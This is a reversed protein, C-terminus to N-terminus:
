YPCNSMVDFHNGDQGPNVMGYELAWKTYYRDTDYVYFDNDFIKGTAAIGGHPVGADLVSIDCELSYHDSTNRLNDYFINDHVDVNVIPGMTYMILLGGSDCGRIINHSFVCNEDDGEFDFGVGDNGGGNTVNAFENNRVTWNKTAQLLGGTSGWKVYGGNMGILRNYEALGTNCNYVQFMGALMNTFLNNRFVFNKFRDKNTSGWLNVCIGVQTNNFFCDTVTLGDLVTLGENASSIRGGIMIGASWAYERMQIIGNEDKIWNGDEDSESYDPHFEYLMDEFRCSEILINRNGYPSDDPLALDDHYYRLYIGQKAKKVSLNRIVWFSPDELVVCHDGWKGNMEIVPSNGTGYSALVVPNEATGKGQLNLTENWSASRRLFVGDGPQLQLGVLPAFSKWPANQSLGNNGDSGAISDVYYATGSITGDSDDTIIPDDPIDITLDRPNFVSQHDNSQFSNSEPLSCSFAILLISILLFLNVSRHRIRM